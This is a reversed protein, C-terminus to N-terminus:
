ENQNVISDVQDQEIENMRGTERNYVLSGAYGSNGTWRCKLLRVTTIDKRLEDQQDRELGIVTDSLQAIAASGRLLSLSTQGGEELPTGTTPRKLHSVLVIVAGTEESLSRLKTMLIDIARRENDGLEDMGSIVISIHDLIIVDCQCGIRLYRLRSLLNEEELSGFHDFFYFYDKISSEWAEEFGPVELPKEDFKIPRNLKLGVLGLASREVSEELAVYGIKLGKERCHFAIERVFESKGIGTGACVTVLEGARIGKTMKDLKEGFFSAVPMLSKSSRLRNLVADAGLIGDPRFEEARWFSDIIAGGAGNVLCENPDKRPLRAIKAKGPTLLSACKKAAQIGPEDSDFMFVVTEFSCVWELNERIAKVAAAAGNPISVVPWKHQHVQSVTLADIEGEVITLYKGGKQWLWQGYLAMKKSDGLISFSKQPTRIKQAVVEGVDNFYNAVHNGSDEIGYQWKRCTEETLKRDPISDIRYEKFSGIRNSRNTFSGNKLAGPFFRNCVYCHAHEDDYLVKGDSSGCECPGRSVEHSNGM